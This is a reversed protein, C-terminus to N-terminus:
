DGVSVWSGSGRERERHFILGDRERWWHLDGSSSQKCCTDQTNRQLILTIFKLHVFLFYNYNVILLYEEERTM